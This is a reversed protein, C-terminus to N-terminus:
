FQPTIMEIRFVMAVVGLFFSALTTACAATAIVSRWRALRQSQYQGCLSFIFHWALLILCFTLVNVLKVRVSLFASIPVGGHQQRVQLVIVIGFAAVMLGLNFVKLMALYLRRKLTNM